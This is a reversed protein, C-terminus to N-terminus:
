LYIHDLPYQHVRDWGIQKYLIPFRDEKKRNMSEHAPASKPYHNRYVQLFRQFDDKKQQHLSLGGVGRWSAHLTNLRTLLLTM